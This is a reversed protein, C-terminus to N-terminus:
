SEQMQSWPNIGSTSTVQQHWKKIGSHMSQPFGNREGISNTPQRHQQSDSKRM